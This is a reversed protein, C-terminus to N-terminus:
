VLCSDIAEQLRQLHVDMTFFEKVRAKGAKGMEVAKHSNHALEIMHSSMGDEDGEDTLFGTVKDVVVDTIGAHRTSIVPLGSLMAELISVPTGESDGDEARISHQLFATSKSFYNIINKHEVPGVFRIRDGIGLENALDKAEKWLPGDAIMNLQANPVEKLTKEFARITILPAKKPTFRGTSLFVTGLGSRDIDIDFYQNPGCATVVMKEEQCGLDMLQRKMDESVAVIKKAIRFMRKYKQGYKEITNYHYADRGHFHVILPIGSKQAVNSMMVGSPGYEALIAHINLAKIRKLMAQERMYYGLSISGTLRELGTELYNIPLSASFLPTSEHDFIPYYGRKVISHFHYTNYPLRDLHAQIFSESYSPKTPSVVLVNRQSAKSM